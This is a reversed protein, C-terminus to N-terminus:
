RSGEWKCDKMREVGWSHLWTALAYSAIVEKDRNDSTSTSGEALQRVRKVLWPVDLGVQGLGGRSGELM